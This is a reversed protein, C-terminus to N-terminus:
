KENFIKMWFAIKDGKNVSRYRLHAMFYLYVPWDVTKSDSRLGCAELIAQQMEPHKQNILAVEKKFGQVTLTEDGYCM